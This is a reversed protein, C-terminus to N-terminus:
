EEGFGDFSVESEDTEPAEGSEHEALLKTQVEALKALESRLRHEMRNILQTIDNPPNHQIKFHTWAAEWWEDKFGKAAWERTNVGQEGDFIGNSVYYSYNKNRDLYTKGANDRQTGPSAALVIKGVNEETLFGDKINQKVADEDVGMTLPDIGNDKLLNHWDYIVKDMLRGNFYGHWEQMAIFHDDVKKLNKEMWPLVEKQAVQYFAKDYRDGGSDEIYHDWEAHAMEHYFTNVISSAEWANGKKLTLLQDFTRMKMDKTFNERNMTLIDYLKSYAANAGASLVRKERITIENAVQQLRGNITGVKSNMDSAFEDITSYGAFCPAIALLSLSIALNLRKM